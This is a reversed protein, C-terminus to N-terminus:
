AKGILKKFAAEDLTPVGLRKADDDKSGPDKGVVVYDTKKSVSSTVRGGQRVILEKAEDRSFGELGGTLVFIKGALPRPGATVGEERMKVGAKRLQEIQRRNEPQRFYLAVSQAIRPGIGYIEALEEEPAKELRDMSGYHQALIAAVHEGVYRIGLAFLLRGLGQRKSGQIARSLNTASKEALRELDALTKVDLGYLDAFEKVLSRDVLQEVVADGLHEIDMARRSGFHLLSQKLRAPCASNTCRSVVEGEPRFAEAGCVPCRNPFSFPKTRPRRKETVVQLIHPIVDGAREILVTDGERVDLREIEDANHLTARSITAGAIEVPELEATPTLAGTRGVSIEIKKIITTAQQAPFKYAIAWRPHHTTSGLRREQEISDVKLVVGDCDCGLKDRAEEVERCAEIAAEIDGCRRRYRELMNKEGKSHIRFGSEHLQHMAQYHSTFPDPEAHSVGYVFIDLPRAATIQPDKPRVPGAAANRPNAFPEEGEEELKRKLREFGQRWMFVEGRVELVNFKALPGDLRHPISRVKMLNLTVDEGTRGDGRTAGRVLRGQEYLLAVSLGDVKAEAVYTFREGPLARKIRAEFERVEDASYANDLSLMAVKHQVQAFGEVPQGGVRQTPSDPTILDPHAEELRKLEQYLKDYEADSVEPRDLVYYLYDHRRILRRLEEIKARVKSIDAM